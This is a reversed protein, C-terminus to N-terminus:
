MKNPVKIALIDLLKECTNYILKLMSLYSNKKDEDNENIINTEGYFKNFLSCLDFLFECIYNLSKESYSKNLVRSLELIKIYIDRETDSYIDNIKVEKLNTKNFISNIRVMTYLIYPGTKGEFSCFKEIDFIYDTTRSPSLDAYKVTAVTLKDLIENKEEDNDYKNMKPTLEEKIQTLLTNLELVGGDRTKFPKGDKGNMTGFSYHNLKCDKKVLGSKYSSRFVQEFYLSQRSDVVYWIEDPDYTKVRNYITALDRTAYISAGDNKIVILPPIEIKDDENAVDIVKAGESEYMCHDLVKLTPEIYKLSSLEGEWLEFNCNLYDYVKKIDAGSVEVIDKWMSFYPERGEDVWATIQRVEEMRDPNEKADKSAAPYYIALEEPTIELKPYEGKYNSDFYCLEPKRKKLESIVMGSQRGLDGLHVDGIVDNGLVKALRKLSEGINASRMHGVHLAKAANAGGYDIIIKKKEQKDILENFDNISKKMKEILKNKNISVNIFGPGAINVNTFRNDLNNVIEQAIERPNKGYKKALSMACNIQFEGLDRRSSSELVVNDLEYGLSSLLKILYEETEKIFSMFFCREMEYM